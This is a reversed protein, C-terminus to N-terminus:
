QRNSIIQRFYGLLNLGIRDWSYKQAKLKAKKSMTAYLNEDNLIKQLANAYSDIDNHYLVFGESGNEVTPYAALPSVVVPKGYAMVEIVPQSFGEHLSPLFFVDCSAYLLALTKDDVLGPLVVDDGIQLGLQDVLLLHRRTPKGTMILTVPLSKSLKSFSYLVQEAGKRNWDSGGVFLILKKQGFKNKFNTVESFFAADHYLDYMDQGYPVVHLKDKKFRYFTRFEGAARDHPVILMDVFSLFFTEITIDLAYMFFKRYNLPNIMGLFSSLLEYFMTGFTQYVVIGRKQLAKALPFVYTSTLLFVDDGNGKPMNEIIMLAKKYFELRSFSSNSIPIRHITLGHVVGNSSTGHRSTCIIHSEVGRQSFSESLRSVIRGFGTTTGVPDEYIITFVRM